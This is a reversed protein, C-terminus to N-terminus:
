LLSTSEQAVHWRLFHNQLTAMYKKAKEEGGQSSCWAGRGYHGNFMGWVMVSAFHKMTPHYFKQDFKKTAKIGESTVPAKRVMRLTSEDTYLINCWDELPDLAPALHHM